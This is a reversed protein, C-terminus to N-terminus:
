DDRGLAGDLSLVNGSTEDAEMHIGSVGPEQRTEDEAIVARAEDTIAKM